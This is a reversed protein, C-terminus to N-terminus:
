KKLERKAAEQAKRQASRAAKREESWGAIKAGKKAASIKERHADSKPKGTLKAAIGARHEPRMEDGAKIINIKASKMRSCIFATDKDYVRTSCAAYSKWTAVYARQNKEAQLYRLRNADIAKQLSKLQRKQFLGIFEELSLNVTNGAETKKRVTTAHWKTLYALLRDSMELSM